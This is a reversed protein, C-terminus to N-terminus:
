GILPGGFIQKVLLLNEILFIAHLSQMWHKDDGFTNCFLGSCVESGLDPELLSRDSKENSSIKNKSLSADKKRACTKCILPTQLANNSDIPAL